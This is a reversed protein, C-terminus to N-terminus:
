LTSSGAIFLITVVLESISCPNSTKRRHPSLGDSKLNLAGSRRMVYVDERLTPVTARTRADKEGLFAARRVSSPRQKM